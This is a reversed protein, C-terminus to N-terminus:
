KEAEKLLKPNEHIDSIVEWWNATGLLINFTKGHVWYAAQYENYYVTGVCSDDNYQCKVGRVISGVYYDKGNEDKFGLFQGVTEPIVEVIGAIKPLKPSTSGAGLILRNRIQYTHITASNPIIFCRDNIKVYYGYVWKGNDKRKGRFKIPRM